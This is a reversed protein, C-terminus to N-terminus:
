KKYVLAKKTYNSSITSCGICVHLVDHIYMDCDICYLQKCHNCRFMCKETEWKMQKQCAFCSENANTIEIETFPEIPFLHHYSRALHPASVLTLGCEICEVPIECYKCYCQPCNFGLCNIKTGDPAGAIHCTCMALSTSGENDMQSYPFGMKILSCIQKNAVTPPDVHQLLKDKLDVDDTAASFTGLTEKCILKCMYIEASLSIHSVRINEQKLEDIVHFLDGPDCTTLSGLVVLIERSAHNPVVKLSKMALEFGNQLSPEGSLSMTKLQELSKMHKKSNGLLEIMVEARKNRLAIIGLLSIPNQDFFEHIFTELLKVM